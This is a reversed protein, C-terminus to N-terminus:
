PKARRYTVLFLATKPKTAFETPRSKGSLDYCVKLEDGKLEYITLFTKGENPGKTGSIDMTKPPKTEDRKVTGEDSQEGIHVVYKDGTLRLEMTDLVEKPWEKSALEAKVPKWTGDAEKSDSAVVLNHTSLSVIAVFMSRVIKRRIM